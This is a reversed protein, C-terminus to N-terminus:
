SSSPRGARSPTTSAAATTPSIQHAQLAPLDNV